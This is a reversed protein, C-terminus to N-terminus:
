EASESTESHINEEGLTYLYMADGQDEVVVPRREFFVRIAIWLDGISSAANIIVAFLVVVLANAPLLALLILGLISLGVIPALGIILYQRRPFFWGPASAFAYWGRLGFKPRQHTFIWFFIGHIIEHAVIMSIFVAILSISFLLPKFSGSFIEVVIDPRVVKVYGLFLWGFLFLLVLSGLNMGWMAAKNQSLNLSYVLVANAPRINTARSPKNM